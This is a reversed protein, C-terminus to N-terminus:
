LGYSTSETAKCVVECMCPRGLVLNKSSELQFTSLALQLPPAREALLCQRSTILYM